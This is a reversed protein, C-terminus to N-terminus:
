TTIQGPYADLRNKRSLFKIKLKMDEDFIATCAKMSIEKRQMYPKKYFQGQRIIKFLGESEMLRNLLIFSDAVDNNRVLVTRNTWKPHAHWIGPFLKIAYPQTLIGKWFRPM